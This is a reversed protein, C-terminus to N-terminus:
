RDAKRLESEAWRGFTPDGDLLRLLPQADTGLRLATAAFAALLKSRDLPDIRAQRGIGEAEAQLANSWRPATRLRECTVVVADLGGDVPCVIESPTWATISPPGAPCGCALARLFSHTADLRASGTVSRWCSFDNLNLRIFGCLLRPLPRQYDKLVHLSRAFASRYGHHTGTVGSGPAADKLLIGRVYDALGSAYASAPDFDHALFREIDAISPDARGLISLFHEDAAALAGPDPASIRLVYDFTVPHAGRRPSNILSISVISRICAGLLEGLEAAEVRLPPAGDHSVIIETAHVVRVESPRIRDSFSDDRMPERGSVVLMPRKVAHDSTVHTDLTDRDPFVHSCFPCVHAPIFRGPEPTRQRALITDRDHEYQWGCTM